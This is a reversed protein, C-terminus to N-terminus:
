QKAALRKARRAANNKDYAAPRLDAGTDLMTRLETKTHAALVRRGTAAVLAALDDRTLDRPKRVTRTKGSRGTAIHTVPVPTSATPHLIMNM